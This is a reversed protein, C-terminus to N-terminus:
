REPDPTNRSARIRAELALTEALWDPTRLAPPPLLSGIGNSSERRPEAAECPAHGGWYGCNGDCSM